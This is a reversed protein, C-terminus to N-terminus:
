RPMSVRFGLTAARVHLYNFFTDQTAGGSLYRVGAYAVFRATPTWTLRMSADLLGGGGPAPFGEADAEVALDRVIPARVSGFALPVPGYNVFNRRLAGQKLRVQADRVALTGGLRFDWGSPARERFVPVDYTMRYTNFQYLVTLPRDPRFTLGDYVIDTRPFQTGSLQVPVVEFRLEHGAAPRGVPVVMTLRGTTVSRGTFETADFRTTQSNNYRQVTNSTVVGSDVELGVTVTPPNRNVEDINSGEDRPLASASDMMLLLAILGTVSRVFM